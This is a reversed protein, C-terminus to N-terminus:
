PVTSPVLRHVKAACRPALAVEASDVRVEGGGPDFVFMCEATAEDEPGAADMVASSGKCELVPGKCWVASDLDFESAHRRPEEESPSRIWQVVLSRSEMITTRLPEDDLVM